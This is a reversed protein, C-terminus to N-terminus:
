HWKIQSLKVEANKPLLTRFISFPDCGQVSFCVRFYGDLSLSSSIKDRVLHGACRLIAGYIFDTKKKREKGERKM